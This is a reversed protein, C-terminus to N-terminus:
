TDLGGWDCKDEWVAFVLGEEEIDIVCWTHIDTVEATCEEKCTHHNNTHTPPDQAQMDTHIRTQQTNLVSLRLRKTTQTPQHLQMRPLALLIHQPPSPHLM